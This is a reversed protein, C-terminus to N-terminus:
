LSLRHQEPQCIKCSHCSYLPFLMHLPDVNHHKFTGRRHLVMRARCRKHDPDVSSPRLDMNEEDEDTRLDIIWLGYQLMVCCVRAWFADGDIPFGDVFDDPTAVDFPDLEESEETDTPLQIKGEDSSFLYFTLLSGTAFIALAVAVELQFAPM